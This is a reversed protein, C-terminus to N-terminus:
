ASDTRSWMSAHTGREGCLLRLTSRRIHDGTSSRGGVAPPVVELLQLLRAFDDDLAHAEPATRRPAAVACARRSCPTTSPRVKSPASRAPPSCLPPAPSRRSRAPKQGRARRHRTVRPPGLLPDRGRHVARAAQYRCGGISVLVGYLHPKKADKSISNEARTHGTSEDDAAVVTQCRVRRPGGLSNWGTRRAASRGLVSTSPPGDTIGDHTPFQRPGGLASTSTASGERPCDRDRPVSTACERDVSGLL